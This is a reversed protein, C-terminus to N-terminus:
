RAYSSPTIDFLTYSLTLKNIDEPLAPDIFFVLSLDKAQKAALPQEHFCFCEIKHLYDAARAPSVSPIAQAVVKTDYTNIVEFSTQRREGLGLKIVEEEASFSWDLNANKNAIMQITVTRDNSNVPAIIEGTYQGATKGNLGTLECFTDYLPVLLFGFAFMVVVIALLGMPSTPKLPLKM